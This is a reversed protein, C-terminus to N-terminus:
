RGQRPNIRCKATPGSNSKAAIGAASHATHCACDRDFRLDTSIARSQHGSLDIQM